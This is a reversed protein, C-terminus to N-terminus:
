VHELPSHGAAHSGNSVPAESVWGPPGSSSEGRLQRADTTAAHGGLLAMYGDVARAVGFEGARARLVARDPPATLTRAIADTLAFVDDVPVLAGYRGGDLIEAPGHPCDTSVVPCGCALAEILVTPLGEDRSCLATLASRALYAYPNEVRGAFHVSEAVGRARALAELPGREPGDGLIMLRHHFRARLAAHAEILLDFRKYAVLRGVGLLVPPSGPRLWPHPCPARSAVLLAQDVVPNPIVTIRAAPVKVADAFDRAVGASVAIVGDATMCARRLAGPLALRRARSASPEGSGAGRRLQVSLTNHVTLFTSVGAKHGACSALLNASLGAAILAHPRECALYRCLADLVGARGPLVAPLLAGPGLRAAMRLRARLPRRRPLFRARTGPPPEVEGRPHGCLLFDVTAGRASMETGLRSMVKQMGGGALDPLLIAVAMRPHSPNAAAPM